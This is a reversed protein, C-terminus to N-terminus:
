FCLTAMADDDAPLLDDSARMEWTIQLNPRSSIAKQVDEETFPLGPFWKSTLQGAIIFSYSSRERLLLVETTPWGDRYTQCRFGAESTIGVFFREALLVPWFGIQFARLPMTNILIDILMRDTNWDALHEIKKLLPGAALRIVYQTPSCAISLSRSHEFVRVDNLYRLPAKLEESPASICDRPSERAGTLVEGWNRTYELGTNDFFTITIQDNPKLRLKLRRELEDAEM